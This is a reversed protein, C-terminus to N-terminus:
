VCIVCKTEVRQHAMSFFVLDSMAIDTYETIQNNKEIKVKKAVKVPFSADLRSLILMNTILLDIETSISM